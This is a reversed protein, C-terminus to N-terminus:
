SDNRESFKLYFFGVNEHLNLNAFLHVKYRGTIHLLIKYASFAIVMSCKM